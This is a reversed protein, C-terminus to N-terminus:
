ISIRCVRSLTGLGVKVEGRIITKERFGLTSFMGIQVNYKKITTKCEKQLQNGCIGEQMQKYACYFHVDILM